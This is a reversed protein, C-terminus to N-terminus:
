SKKSVSSDRTDLFPSTIRPVFIRIVFSSFSIARSIPALTKQLL